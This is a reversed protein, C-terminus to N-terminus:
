LAEGYNETNMQKNVAVLILFAGLIPLAAFAFYTITGGILEFLVGAIIPGVSFGLAGLSSLGFYTGKANQPAARDIAEILYPFTLLEGVTFLLIATGVYAVFFYSNIAGLMVLSTVVFTTGVIFSAATSFRSLIWHSPFHLVVIGAANLAITLSYYDAALSPQINQFHLYLMNKTLSAAMYTVFTGLLIILLVRNNTLFKYGIEPKWEGKQNLGVSAVHQESILLVTWVCIALLISAITLSPLAIRYDMLWAVSVGSIAGLNVIFYRTQYVFSVNTDNTMHDSFLAKSGPELVGVAAIISISSVILAIESGTFLILTSALFVLLGFLQNNKRGFRDVLIGSIISAVTSGFVSVGILGAVAPANWNFQQMLELPIYSWILFFAAKSVFTLLLLLQHNKNLKKNM